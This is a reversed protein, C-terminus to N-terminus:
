GLRERVPRLIEVLYEAATAKLDMAHVEGKAYASAIEEHTGFTRDGGFKEPRTVTVPGARPFIHHQLIQLIPNEERGPPCFAKQIKKRIDEEKEAVSIYNGKSSSMKEGDLGLLIPTHICVPAPFGM